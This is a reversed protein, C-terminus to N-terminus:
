GQATAVAAKREGLPLLAETKHREREYYINSASLSVVRILFM